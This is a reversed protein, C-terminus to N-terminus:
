ILTPRSIRLCSVVGPTLMPKLWLWASCVSRPSVYSITCKARATARSSHGCGRCRRSTAVSRPLPLLTRYSSYEEISTSSSRGSSSSGSVQFPPPSPSTSVQCRLSLPPVSSPHRPPYSAHVNSHFLHVLLHSPWPPFSLAAGEKRLQSRIGSRSVLTARRTPVIILIVLRICSTLVTCSLISVLPLLAYQKGNEHDHLRASGVDLYRYQEGYFSVEIKCSRGDSCALLTSSTTTSRASDMSSVQVWRIFRFHFRKYRPVLVVPKPGRGLDGSLLGANLLKESPRRRGGYTGRGGRMRGM